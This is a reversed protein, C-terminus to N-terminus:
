NLTSPTAATAPIHRSKISSMDEIIWKKLKDQDSRHQRTFNLAIVWVIVGVAAICLCIAECVIPGVLAREGVAPPPLPETFKTSFAFTIASTFSGIGAGLAAWAVASYTDTRDRCEDIRAMITDWQSVPIIVAAEKAPATVELSHSVCLNPAARGM